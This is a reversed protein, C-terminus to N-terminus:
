PVIEVLRGETTEPSPLRVVREDGVLGSALEITPGTDREIVVPMIRIREGPGVVAVRVGNGDNLLATAPVALSRHPTPLTLSVQAYMGGMLEGKPNPVRVETLM